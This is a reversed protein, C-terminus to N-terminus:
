TGTSKNLNDLEHLEVLKSLELKHQNSLYLSTVLLKNKVKSTM